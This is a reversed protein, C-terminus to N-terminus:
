RYGCHFGAAHRYFAPIVDTRLDAGSQDAFEIGVWVRADDIAAAVHPPLEYSGTETLYARTFADVLRDLYEDTPEFEGDEDAVLRYYTRQILAGGDDVGHDDFSGTTTCDDRADDRDGADGTNMHNTGDDM